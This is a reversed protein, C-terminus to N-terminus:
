ILARSSGRGAGPAGGRSNQAAASRTRLSGAHRYRSISVLWMIGALRGRSSTSRSRSSSYRYRRAPTVQAALRECPMERMRRLWPGRALDDPRRGTSRELGRVFAANIRAVLGASDSFLEKWSFHLVEWGADQLLTDRHYQHKLDDHTTYKAMGDAEVVTGFEPWCFDVRAAFKGNRGLLPVQLQPDPLGHERFVVRACSELVSEPVWDAFDAVRRAREIGPWRRCDKLVLRIESILTLRRRLASDAAVVGSMFTSTRAIDVVTRAVATVPLEYHKGVHGAPLRASHQIVDTGGHRGKQRGPPVTITVVDEGPPYLLEIAHIRAASHHSAVGDRASTARVAAVKIAHGLCPDDAATALIERTAYFGHRVRILDGSAVLLALRKRSVGVAEWQPVSGM